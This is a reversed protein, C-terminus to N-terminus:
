SEPPKKTKMIAAYAANIQSMKDRTLEEIVPDRNDGFRDPHYKQAMKKYAAKIEEQDASYPLGLVDYHYKLTDSEPAGGLLEPNNQVTHGVLLGLAAGVPGAVMWGIGAGVIKHLKKKKKDDMAEKMDDLM